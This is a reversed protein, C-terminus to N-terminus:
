TDRFGCKRKRRQVHLTPKGRIIARLITTPLTVSRMTKRGEAWTVTVEKSDFAVAVFRGNPVRVLVVDERLM